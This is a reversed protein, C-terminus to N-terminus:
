AYRIADGPKLHTARRLPILIVIAALIITAALALLINQSPFALQIHEHVIRHVLWVLMQDLAYGIPIGLLWGIIAISIGETAFIRRIDRARAGINRLIGTERTRELISMTMANALAILSIAVILSGLVAITTTLTQYGAVDNAQGVYTIESDAPYGHAALTNLIRTTTRDIFPHAHSTTKVWYDSGGASRGLIQRMTTIPVYLATGSEQQNSAIGIVKVNLPGGSTDLRITQGLRTNTVGAISEQVIAVHARSRQQAPSFWSGQTIHYHFMTRSQVSWVVADHAALRVDATFMPEVRAVGPVSQILRAAHADLPRMTTLIKVDEGHDRWSANAANSVATALGLVALLNGVALGVMLATAFNRRRRRGLNRLGIQATRPVFGIRRLLRDGADMGGVVSGTAQLAERVNVQTARRIAPLAALVPGLLGVAVSGALVTLDVGFGVNVAFFTSGLYRVLVNALAIGLALGILTGLAGLLLATRVYVLGIQRRRGGIAKMVSIESTQEAVLTTMTNSILVLASLLALVTVIYFFDSFTNFDSKGPWEGTTRLTPLDSFGTFGPVHVLQSRIAEVTASMAQASTNRLRFALMEYGHVGSLRAVTAPTAYFIITNDTIVRRGTDLNEGVGSVRLRRVSGDAAVVRIRDGAGVSFLGHLSNQAETLVEGARPASGSQVNVVDVRQRAYDPIGLVEAPARRAGVYVQTSFFARPQVATVNPVAALAALSRADLTLPASSVMVNPFRESAVQSQMSRDILTPMAFLGLSAVALALTGVAFWSRSRRRTLDAISKRYAASVAVLDEGGWWSVM